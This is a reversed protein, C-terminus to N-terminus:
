FDAPRDVSRQEFPRQTLHDVLGFSETDAKHGTGVAWALDDARRGVPRHREDIDARCGIRLRCGFSPHPRIQRLRDVDSAVREEAIRQEFGRRVAEKPIRPVMVDHCISNAERENSSSHRTDVRRERSSPSGIGAGEAGQRKREFLLRCIARGLPEFLITLKPRIAQGSQRLRCTQAITPVQFGGPENTVGAHRGKEVSLCSRDSARCIPTLRGCSMVAAAATKTCRSVPACSTMRSTGSVARMVGTARRVGTMIDFTKGTRSATRGFM